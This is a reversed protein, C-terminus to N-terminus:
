NVTQRTVYVEEDWTGSNGEPNSYYYGGLTSTGNDHYGLTNFFYREAAIEAKAETTYVGVITSNVTEIPKSYVDNDFYMSYTPLLDHVVLYVTQRM